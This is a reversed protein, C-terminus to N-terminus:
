VDYWYTCPNTPNPAIGPLTGPGAVCGTAGGTLPRHYPIPYRWDYPATGTVLQYEGTKFTNSLRDLAECSYDNFTGTLVELVNIWRSKENTLNVNGPNCTVTSGDTKYEMSGSTDVLLLVNPLPPAIDIQARASSAAFLAGLVGGVVVASRRLLHTRSSHAKTM